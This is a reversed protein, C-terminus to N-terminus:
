KGIKRIGTLKRKISYAISNLRKDMKTRLRANKWPTHARYELFLPKDPHVCYTTNPKAHTFHIIRTDEGGRRTNWKREIGILQGEALLNLVDQDPYKFTRGALLEFAKDTLKQRQWERLNMLVVGSNCYPAREDRGLAINNTPSPRAVAAIVAKGMEMEQLPRLSGKILTDADLYLLHGKETPLISPLLLRSYTVRSWNSNIPLNKIQRLAAKDLDFFTLRRRACAQIKDKDAQKLGDGIVWIEADPVEGNRELSYIMVGALEAFRRDITCAIIM